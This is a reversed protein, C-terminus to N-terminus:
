IDLSKLGLFTKALGHKTIQDSIRLEKKILKAGPCDGVCQGDYRLTYKNKKNLLNHGQMVDPIPRELVHLITPAVDIQGGITSNKGPKLDPHVFFLPIREDKFGVRGISAVDYDNTQIHEKLWSRDKDTVKLHADHDGYLVVLTHELEGTRKLDRFLREVADDVYRVSQIYGRLMKSAGDSAKLLTSNMLRRRENLYTYPHHSSLTIVFTFHQEKVESLIQGVESLFRRDDLGWGVRPKKPFAEQFFSKKFGYKPHLTARNWMGKRYAHMSQSVPVNLQHALTVFDNDVHRFVVAGEAVPHLSNLVLYECDSTSSSGTQDYIRDFYVGKDILSNLFPSIAEGDVTADIVWREIAELQLILVSTEKSLQQTTKESVHRKQNQLLYAKIDERETNSLSEELFSNKIALAAERIHAQFFGTDWMLDERNLVSTSFKSDFYKNIDYTSIGALGICYLLPIVRWRKSHLKGPYTRISSVIAIVYLIFTIFLWIDRPYLLAKVSDAVDGLQGAGGWATLPVVGGFYRMYIIDCFALCWILPAVLLMVKLARYTGLVVVPLAWVIQIVFAMLVYEKRRPAPILESVGHVLLTWPVFSMITYIPIRVHFLRPWSLSCIFIWFLLCGSMVEFSLSAGFIM